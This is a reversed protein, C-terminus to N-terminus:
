KEGSKKYKRDTRNKKGISNAERTTTQKFPENDKLKNIKFECTKALEVLDGLLERKM